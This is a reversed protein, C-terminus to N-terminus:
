SVEEESVSTDYYTEVKIVHNMESLGIRKLEVYKNPILVRRRGAFCENHADRIRGFSTAADGLM